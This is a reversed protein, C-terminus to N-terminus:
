GAERLKAKIPALVAMIAEGTVPGDKGEHKLKHLMFFEANVARDRVWHGANAAEAAVMGVLLEERQMGELRVARLAHLQRPTMNLWEEDSLGLEVRAAAWAELWTMTRGAGGAEQGAAGAAPMSEVWAQLLAQQVAGINRLTLLKGAERATVRGGSGPGQDGAGTLAAALLGRLMRATPRAVEGSAALMDVGTAEECDLLVQYTIRLWWRRGSLPLPGGGTIARPLRAM